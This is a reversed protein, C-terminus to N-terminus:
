DNPAFRKSRAAARRTRSETDEDTRGKAYGIGEWSTLIMSADFGVEDMWRATLAYSHTAKWAACDSCALAVNGPVYGLRHATAKDTGAVDDDSWLISPLLTVLVAYAARNRDTSTTCPEGCIVCVAYRKGKPTQAVEMAATLAARKQGSPLGCQAMADPADCMIRQARALRKSASGRGATVMALSALLDSKTTEIEFTASM